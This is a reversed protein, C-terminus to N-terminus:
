SPLTKNTQGDEQISCSAGGGGAPNKHVKTPHKKIFGTEFIWTQKLDPLTLSV